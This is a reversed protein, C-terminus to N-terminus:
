MIVELIIIIIALTISFYGILNLKKSKKNIKDIKEIIKGQKIHNKEGKKIYISNPKYGIRQLKWSIPCYQYQGIESASIFNSNNITNNKLNKQM